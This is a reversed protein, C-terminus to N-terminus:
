KYLRRDIKIFPNGQPAEEPGNRQIEIQQEDFDEFDDLFKDLDTTIDHEFKVFSATSPTKFEFLPPPKFNPTPPVPKKGGESKAPPPPPPPVNGGSLLGALNRKSPGGLFEEQLRRIADEPEAWLSIFHM